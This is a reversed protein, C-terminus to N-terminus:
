QELSRCERAIAGIFFAIFAIFPALARDFPAIASAKPVAHSIFFDSALLTNSARALRIVFSTFDVPLNVSGPTHMTFVRWLGACFAPLRIANPLSTFTLALGARVITLAKATFANFSLTHFSSHNSDGPELGTGRLPRRLTPIRYQPSSRSM